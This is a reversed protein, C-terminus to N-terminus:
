KPSPRSQKKGEKGQQSGQRRSDKDTPRDAHTGQRGAKDRRGGEPEHEGKNM